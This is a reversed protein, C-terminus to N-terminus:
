NSSGSSLSLLLDDSSWLGLESSFLWNLIVTTVEGLFFRLSVLRVGGDLSIGRSLSADWWDSDLLLNLFNSWHLSNDLSGNLLLLVLGLRWWLLDYSSRLRLTGWRNLLLVILSRWHLLSCWNSPIDWLDLLRKRFFSETM